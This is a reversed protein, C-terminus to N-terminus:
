AAAYNGLSFYSRGGIGGGDTKILTYIEALTKNTLDQGAALTQTQQNLSEIIPKYAEAQDEVNKILADTASILRQQYEAFEPTSGFVERALSQLSTGANTFTTQDVSEGRAIKGELDSFKTSAAALKATPSLYSLDGSTLSERFEKLLGTSNEIAEKTQQNVVTMLDAYDESSAGAEKFIAIVAETDKKITDLAAAFPDRIAAAQKKVNEITGAVVIARDIDKFTRIVKDATASLGSIVGKTLANKVAAEIAEEETSFKLVGAGKTKGSGSPDFTFKKNRQGISGLNLGATVTGGLASAIDSIKGRTSGALADAAGRLSATGVADAAVVQGTSSTSITSTAKKTKKFFGGVVAGLTGGVLSGIPGAIAGGIAGGIQGGLKSTKVGIAKGIDAVAGGIQAGALAQGATKGTIGLKKLAEGLPKFIPKVAKGVERWADKMSKSYSASLDELFTTKRRKGTVTIEDGDGNDNAAKRAATTTSTSDSVESKSSSTGVRDLFDTFEREVSKNVTTTKDSASPGDSGVGFSRELGSRIKERIPAFFQASIYSSLTDKFMSSLSKFFNKFINGSSFLSNRISQTFADQLKNMADDILSTIQRINEKRAEDLKTLRENEVGLDKYARVQDILAERQAALVGNRDGDKKIIQDIQDIQKEVEETKQSFTTAFESKGDLTDQLKRNEKTLDEIEDKLGPFTDKALMTLLSQYETASLINARMSDDLTKLGDNFENRAKEVPDLSGRLQDLQRRVADIESDGSGKGKKGGSGGDSKGSPVGGSASIRNGQAWAAAGAPGFGFRETVQAELRDTVRRQARKDWDTGEVVNSFDERLGTAQRRHFNRMPRGFDAEEGGPVLKAVEGVTDIGVRVLNILGKAYGYLESLISLIRNGFWTFIQDIRNGLWVAFGEIAQFAKQFGSVMYDQLSAANNATLRTQDEFAAIGAAGVAALAPIRLFVSGALRGLAAINVRAAVLLDSFSSVKSGTLKGTFLGLASAATRYNTAIEFGYKAINTAIFIWTERTAKILAPVYSLLVAAGAAAAAIAVKDFNDSLLNIAGVLIKTIGFSKDLNGLFIQFKTKANQLAEGITVPIRAFEENLQKTIGPGGFARVLENIGIKGEKAKDRVNGLNIGLDALETSLALALRPSNELVSRLEDGQIRGSSFAQSLQQTAATVESTSAGSIKMAKAVNSTVTLATGMTVGYAKGAMALKTFLAANEKYGTRTDLSVKQLAREREATDAFTGGLLSLRARVQNVTDIYEVMTGISLGAAFYVALNRARVFEGAMGGLTRQSIKLASNYKQHTSTGQALTNHLGQAKNAAKGAATGLGAIGTVSVKTTIGLRALVDVLRQGATATRRMDSALKGLRASLRDFAAGSKTGQSAMKTLAPVIVSLDKAARTARTSVKGLNSSIRDASTAAARGAVALREAEKSMGSLARTAATITAPRLSSMLRSASKDARDAASAFSMVGKSAKEANLGAKEFSRNTKSWQADLNGAKKSADEAVRALRGIKQAFSTVNREAQQSDFKVSTDYDSM